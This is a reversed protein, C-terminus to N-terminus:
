LYGVQKPAQFGQPRDSVAPDLVLVASVNQHIFAISLMITTMCFVGSCHVSDANAPAVAWRVFLQAGGDAQRRVM